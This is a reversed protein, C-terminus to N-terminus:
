AIPYGDRVYIWFNRTRVLQFNATVYTRIPDFNDAWLASDLPEDLVLYDTHHVMEQFVRVGGAQDPEYVLRTAVADVLTPCGPVASSFRDAMVLSQYIAATACQGPPVVSDVQPGPDVGAQYGIRVVLAGLLSVVLAATVLPVLNAGRRGWASALRQASIGLLIALYPMLMAGFHDYYRAIAFQAGSMAVAAALAFWELATLRRRVVVFALLVASAIVIAAIATEAASGEFTMYGLRVMVPTRVGGPARSLQATITDRVFAGPAAVFFPMVPAAFGLVVGAAFPMLRRRPRSACIVALVAVPVIAAILVAGAFGFLIGGLMIRWRGALRDGSMAVNLGLLCLLDMLAELMGNGLAAYLFPYVAFVGCTVLVARWGLHRVVRGALAVDAFALLTASLNLSILAYRSGVALSLLGFPSMLLVVGPPQVLVFDRYPLAGHVLRIASGLYLSTDFAGGHLLGAPRSLAFGELGAALLGLGAALATSPNRQRLGRAAPEPSAAPGARSVARAASDPM